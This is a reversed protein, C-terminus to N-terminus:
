DNFSYPYFTRFFENAAAIEEQIEPENVEPYLFSLYKQELAEAYEAYESNRLRNIVSLLHTRSSPIYNDDHLLRWHHFRLGDISNYTLSQYPTDEPIENGRLLRQAREQLMERYKSTLIELAEYDGVEECQTMFAILAKIHPRYEDDHLMRWQRATYGNVYFFKQGTCSCTIVHHRYDLGLETMFRKESDHIFRDSKIRMKLIERRSMQACAMRYLLNKVDKEDGDFYSDDKIRMWDKPTLLVPLAM